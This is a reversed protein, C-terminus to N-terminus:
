RHERRGFFCFFLVFMPFTVWGEPYCQACFGDQHTITSVSFFFIPFLAPPAALYDGAKIPFPTAPPSYYGVMTCFPVFIKFFVFIACNEQNKELDSCSLKQM